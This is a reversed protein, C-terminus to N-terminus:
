IKFVWGLLLKFNSLHFDYFFKVQSTVKEVSLKSMFFSGHWSISFFILCIEDCNNDSKRFFFVKSYFISPFTSEITILSWFMTMVLHCSEIKPSPFQICSKIVSFYKFSSKTFLISCDDLVPLSYTSTLLFRFIWLCM